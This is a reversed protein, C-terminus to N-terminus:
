VFNVAVASGDDEWTNNSTTSGTPTEIAGSFGRAFVNNTLVIQSVDTITGKHEIGIGWTSGGSSPEFYCNNITVPGLTGTTPDVQIFIASNNECRVFSCNDVIIPQAMEGIFLGDTHDGPPPVMEQVMDHIYCDYLEDGGNPHGGHLTHHVHCRRMIMHTTYNEDTDFGYDRHFTVGDGIECDTLVSGAGLQVARTGADNPTLHCNTMTVAYWFSGSFIDCQILNNTFTVPGTLRLAGSGGFSADYSWNTGSQAGDSGGVKTLTTGAPVGTNTADPRVSAGGASVSPARLLGSGTAAVAAVNVNVGSPEVTNRDRVHHSVISIAM